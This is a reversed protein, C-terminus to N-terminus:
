MTVNREENRAVCKERSSKLPVPLLISQRKHTHFFVTDSFPKWVDKNKKLAIIAMSYIYKKTQKLLTQYILSLNKYNECEQVRSPVDHQEFM